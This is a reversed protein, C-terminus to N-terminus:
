IQSIWQKNMKHTIKIDNDKVYKERESESIFVIILKIDKEGEQFEPLENVDNVDNVDNCNMDGLYPMEFDIGAFDFDWGSLIDFDFEGGDFNSVVCAKKFQEETFSVERYVYKEGNYIIYGHALTHNNTPEKFRESIIIESGNMIKARQNGGVYAKNNVCYVIGSLDGLEELHEKLLEMQRDTIKRPNGKFIKEKSVKLKM